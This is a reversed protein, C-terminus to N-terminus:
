KAWVKPQSTWDPEAEVLLCSVDLPLDEKFVLENCISFFSVLRHSSRHLYRTRWAWQSLFDWDGNTVSNPSLTSKVPPQLFAPLWVFFHPTPKIRGLNINAHTEHASDRSTHQQFLLSCSLEAQFYRSEFGHAIQGKLDTIFCSHM